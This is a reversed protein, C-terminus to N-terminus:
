ARGRRGTGDRRRPARTWWSGGRGAPGRGGGRATGGGGPKGEGADVLHEVLDAEAVGAVAPDLAEREPHALAEAQGAGQEAVGLHQDEVLRGVAEVGLADVPQPLEQARKASSPPVTSTDLWRSASTAWVTSSTTIMALPRSTVWDESASRAWGPWARRAPACAAPRPAARRARRWPCRPRAPRGGVRQHRQLRGGLGDAEGGGAGADHDVLHRGFVEVELLEEELERGGFSSESSSRTRASSSFSRVVRINQSSTM